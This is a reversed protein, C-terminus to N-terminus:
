KNKTPGPKGTCLPNGHEPKEPQAGAGPRLLQLERARSCRSLQGTAQPIKWPWADFQHGQMRLWQLVLSAWFHTVKFSSFFQFFFLELVLNEFVGSLPCPTM